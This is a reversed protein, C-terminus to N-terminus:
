CLSSEKKINSYRMFRVRKIDKLSNQIEILATNIVKNSIIYFNEQNIDHLSVIKDSIDKKIKKIDVFLFEYPEDLYEGSDLYTCDSIDFDIKDVNIKEDGIKLFVVDNFTHNDEYDRITINVNTTNGLCEVTAKKLDTFNIEEIM